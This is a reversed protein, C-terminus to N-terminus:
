AQWRIITTFDYSFAYVSLLVVLLLEKNYNDVKEQYENESM